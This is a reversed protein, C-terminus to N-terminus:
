SLSKQVHSHHKLGKSMLVKRAQYFKIYAPKCLLIDFFNLSSFLIKSPSEHMVYKYNEITCM